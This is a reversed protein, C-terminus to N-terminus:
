RYLGGKVKPLEGDETGLQSGYLGGAAKGVTSPIQESGSFLMRAMLSKFLASKDAMFAAWSAPNNALLSLGMPNKNLDMLARRESVKLANLLDSEKKNLASVEPVANSIEEKLGRAIAKQAETDASGMQGYKKSLQAYTGQKMEQALQVPMDAKGALLPHSRFEMWAKKIADLDAQPNVQKKFKEYTEVLRSGVDSKKITATSNAITAQIEDGLDDVMGKLKEVGGKTPNVGEELLTDIARTARGTKLDAITPKLASQMLAKGGAQMTPSAVKGAMGGLVTPVAQTAVNAAFGLGGAVEPSVKGALADTVAGGADYGVKEVADSVQQSADGVAGVAAGVPGAQLLGKAAAMGTRKMRDIMSPSQDMKPAKAAEKPPLMFNKRIAAEMEQESMGDPFEVEGHGPVEVIVSM